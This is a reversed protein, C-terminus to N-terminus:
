GFLDAIEKPLPYSGPKVAIYIDGAKMRVVGRDLESVPSLKKIALKNLIAAATSGGEIFLEKVAANEIIERVAGAMSNRLAVAAANSADIAIVIKGEKHLLNVTKQVWAETIEEPMWSVNRLTRIFNKRETFATGCVYLFPKQLIAKELQVPRYKAELLATFFDGAGALARGATKGTWQKYDGAEEAEGVVIGPPITDSHKVVEVKNDLIEKVFATKVPFEPDDAFGTRQIEEGNVLYKGSAITRGLSPNAPMIFADAQNLLKMQIALEELVYGRLVSDIKKYILAPKLAMAQRVAKETIALAAELKLSRSDTSIIVVDADSWGLENVFVDVHLGYRLSIGALEAAGTFDDAIVVIM